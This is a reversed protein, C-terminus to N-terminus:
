RDPTSDLYRILGVLVKLAKRAAHEYRAREEETIYGSDFAEEFHDMLEVESAKAIRCFRAFDKHKVRGFGEAINRTASRAADLLQGHLKVDARVAPRQCLERVKSRLERALKWALLERFSKAM